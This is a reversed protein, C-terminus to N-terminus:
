IENRKLRELFDNFYEPLGSDFRMERGDAPHSFAIMRAHLIQGGLDLGKRLGGYLPDGAVPHGLAAMHARIQHTRGTYLRLRVHSYGPYEALVTYDTRAPRGGADATMRRRDTRSRALPLEVSGSSERLHGTIVAEYCREFTHAAIQAALCRHARDTKAVILLGSTDKDLRHVIGPRMVGNIGSLSGGCHALLASVLTGNWNGPAPHVVMGRPKNVVLLMDDEYVVDIPIDEASAECPEPEPLEATVRTGAAPRFNKGRPVGDALAAGAECLKQALARSIGARQALVADLRRGADEAGVTFDAKRREM